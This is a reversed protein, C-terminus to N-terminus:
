KRPLEALYAATEAVPPDGITQGWFRTIRTSPEGGRFTKEGVVQGKEKDIVKVDYFVVQATTGRSYRGVIEYRTDIRVITGVDEPTAARLEEPIKWYVPHLLHRDLKRDLIILKGRVYPEGKHEKLPRAKMWYGEVFPTALREDRAERGWRWYYFGYGAGGCLAFLILLGLLGRLAEKTKETM